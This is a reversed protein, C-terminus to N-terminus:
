LEVKGAAGGSTADVTNAVLGIMCGRTYMFYITLGVIFIMSSFNTWMGWTRFLPNLGYGIRFLIRGTIFATTYLPVLKMEEGSLFTVLVATSVLYVLFQEVTNTLVNKDLMVYNEKGALPNVAPTTARKLGVM